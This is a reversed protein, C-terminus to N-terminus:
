QAAGTSDLRFDVRGPVGSAMEHELSLSEIVSDPPLGAFDTPKMFSILLYVSFRCSRPLLGSAPLPAPLVRSHVSRHPRRAITEAM